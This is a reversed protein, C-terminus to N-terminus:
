VPQILDIKNGYLDKLVVVTGYKEKRPEEIFEVGKQKMFHYDRWFDDTHIFIFVRGGTQNGICAIQEPTSAAALLLCFGLSGRPSIRVWRKGGGLDTDEVLEFNLKETYFEIAEDYNKVVLTIQTINVIM